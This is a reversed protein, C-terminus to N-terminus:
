NQKNNFNCSLTFIVFSDTITLALNAYFELDIYIQNDVMLTAYPQLATIYLIGEELHMAIKYNHCNLLIPLSNGTQLAEAFFNKPDIQNFSSEIIYNHKFLNHMLMEAYRKSELTSTSTFIGTIRITNNDSPKPACDADSELDSEIGFDIIPLGKCLSLLLLGYRANDIWYFNADDIEWSSNPPNMSIYLPPEQDGTFIFNFDTDQYDVFINNFDYENSHLVYNVAEKMNVISCSWTRYRFGLLAGREFIFNVTEQTFPTDIVIIQSNRISM